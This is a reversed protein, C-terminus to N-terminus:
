MLQQEGKASVNTRKHTYRGQTCLTRQKTNTKIFENRWGKSLIVATIDCVYSVVILENFLFNFIKM